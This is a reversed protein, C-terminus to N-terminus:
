INKADDNLGEVINNLYVRIFSDLFQVFNEQSDPLIDYNIEDPNYFVKEAMENITNLFSYEWKEDLFEYDILYDVVLLFYFVVDVLANNFEQILNVNSLLQNESDQESLLSIFNEYIKPYYIKNLIVANFLISKREEDNKCASLRNVEYTIKFLNMEKELRYINIGYYTKDKCIHALAFKNFDLFNAYKIKKLKSFFKMYAKKIEESDHNENYLSIKNLIDKYLNKFRKYTDYLDANEPKELELYLSWEHESDKSIAEGRVREVYVEKSNLTRYRTQRLNEEEISIEPNESNDKLFRNLPKGKIKKNSNIFECLATFFFADFIKSDLATNKYILLSNLNSFSPNNDIVFDYIDSFAYKLKQSNEEESYKLLYTTIHDLVKNLEVFETKNQQLNEDSSDYNIYFNNTRKAINYWSDDTNKWNEKNDM